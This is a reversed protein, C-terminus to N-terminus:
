NIEPNTLTEGRALKIREVHTHLREYTDRPMSDLINNQLSFSELTMFKIQDITITHSM